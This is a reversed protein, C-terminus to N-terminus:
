TPHHPVLSMEKFEQIVERLLKEHFGTGCELNRGFMEAQQDWWKLKLANLASINDHNGGPLEEETLWVARTKDGLSLVQLLKM